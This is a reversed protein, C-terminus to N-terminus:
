LEKRGYEKLEVIIADGPKLSVNQLALYKGPRTLMDTSELNLLLKGTRYSRYWKKKLQVVYNDMSEVDGVNMAVLYPPTNITPNHRVYSLINENVTVFQLHQNKHFASQKRILAVQRYIDIHSQSITSQM